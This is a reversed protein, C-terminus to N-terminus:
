AEYARVYSLFGEASPPLHPTGHAAARRASVEGVRTEMEYLKVERLLGFQLLRQPRMLKIDDDVGCSGRFAQVTLLEELGVGLACAM